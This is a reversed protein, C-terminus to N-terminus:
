RRPASASRRDRRPRQGMRTRGDGCAARTAEHPAWGQQRRAPHNVGPRTMSGHPADGHAIAATNAAHSSDPFPTLHDDKSFSPHARAKHDPTAM